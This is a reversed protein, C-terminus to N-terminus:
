YRNLNRNNPKCTKKAKKLFCIKSLLNKFRNRTRLIKEQEYFLEHASKQPIEQSGLLCERCERCEGCETGREQM